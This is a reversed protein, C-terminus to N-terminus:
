EEVGVVEDAHYFVDKSAGDRMVWLKGNPEIYSVTGKAGVNFGSIVKVRSGIKISKDEVGFHQKIAFAFLEAQYQGASKIEYENGMNICAQACEAIILEAFKAQIQPNIDPYHSGGAQLQLKRLLEKNM